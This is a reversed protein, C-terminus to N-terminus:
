STFARPRFAPGPAFDRRASTGPQQYVAVSNIVWYAEDFEQPNNGVFEECTAAKASCIPNDSWVQGAWDGCFTTNFIINHEKFFSDMDCGPSGVFRAAPSGWTSPDPNGATIDAPITARPFFWIAIHESTWEMAYVGGNATNFGSGYNLPNNTRQGCGTNGNGAGCDTGELDTTPDTGENTITCGPSTHLTVSTADQDNVGEIIDIEGSTPWNPGFTWFAPWAGCVNEPMHAIDGIILGHTFAKNSTLRTSKRGAAPNAETHDAGFYITGNNRALGSSFATAQDVYQVFGHTPDDEAFFTFENFFNNADYYTDLTYQAKAVGAILALFGTIKPADFLM